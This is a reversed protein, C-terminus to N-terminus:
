RRSNGGNNNENDGNNENNNASDDKKYYFEMVIEEETMKVTRDYPAGTLIYGDFQKEEATFEDGVLGDKVVEDMIQNTGIDIYKVRVRANKKYYFTFVNTNEQWRPEEVMTYGEFTKRYKTFDVIEGVVNEFEVDDDLPKATTKDVYRVTIKSTDPGKESFKAIVSKHEKVATFKGLNYKGSSDPTFEQTKENIRIEEIKYGEDPTVIIDKTSDKGYEVKESFDKDGDTITGGKGEVETMILFIKIKYTYTVEILDKDVIGFRNSPFSAGEYEPKNTIQNTEYVEGYNVEFEQDPVLQTTTGDIYHHVVVKGKKHIFTVVINMDQTVNQLKPLTYTGDSDPTFEQEQGNIKISGIKYNKDPTIKIDKISTQGDQVEECFEEGSDTITGGEGEVSTIIKHVNEAIPQIETESDSNSLEARINEITTTSYPKLSEYRYKFLLIISIAVIMIVYIILKVKRKNYRSKQFSLIVGERM